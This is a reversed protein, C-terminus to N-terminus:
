PAFILDSAPWGRMVSDGVKGWLVRTLTARALPGRNVGTACFATCTRVHNISSLFTHENEFMSRMSVTQQQKHPMYCNTDQCPLASYPLVAGIPLMMEPYLEYGSLSPGLLAVCCRNTVDNWSVPLTKSTTRWVEKRPSKEFFCNIWIIWSNQLFQIV